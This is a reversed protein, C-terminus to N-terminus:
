QLAVVHLHSFGTSANMSLWCRFDHGSTTTFADGTVMTFGSTTIVGASANNTYDVIITSTNTQPALTHAGGNTAHQINGNAEDPQYTGSSKTGASYSTAAFGKTLVDAVDAKLTDADYAQVTVGIDSPELGTTPSLYDTGDSAASFGGSGNGKLIATGSTAPAYDTGSVAASLVGSAAKLLGSTTARKVAAGSTGSFIAIESDVSVGPGTVGGSGADGVPIITVILVADDALTGGSSGVTCALTRYSGSDTDSTVTVALFNDHDAVDMLIMVAKNTSSSNFAAALYGGIAGEIATESLYIETISGLTANNGKVYTSGPDSSATNTSWLYSFGSGELFSLADIIALLVQRMKSPTISNDAGDVISSTILSRAEEVTPM